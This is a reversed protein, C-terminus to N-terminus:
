RVLVMKRTATFGNAQLVCLYLGGPLAAGSHDTGDWTVSHTGARTHAAVLTRVHRGLMDYVRVEVQSEEPLSFTIRTSPNFPNPWNQELSYALQMSSMSLEAPGHMTRRGRCDVDALWYYYRRGAQVQVDDFSYTRRENSTGAGPILETTLKVRAAAGEEARYVEFGLNETESHTEWHLRAHAGIQEVRFGVLQVPVLDDNHLTGAGFVNDKGPEGFDHSVSEELRAFVEVPSWEPYRSLLLAASAAVHPAAASTGSFVGGGTFVSVSTPGVWDPKLRGDYTPGQSSYSAQPGTHWQAVPVAGVTLARAADGPILISSASHRYQLTYYNTFLTLEHSGDANTKRVRVAVEASRDMVVLLNEVPWQSGTQRTTSSDYAVWSGGSGNYYYLFLDYDQDSQWWDNWSLFVGVSAGINAFGLSNFEYLGGEAFNHWGNADSDSFQGRYHRLAHNGAANVWTIGHAFATDVMSCIPGTGDLPGANPWCMSHNIVRVGRAICSDVAEALDLEDGIKMLYLESGPAMDHVVEAVMTGHTTGGIGTGTFDYTHLSPPREGNAIAAELNGFGADVVAIKVGAGTWGNAHYGDANTLAVGESTVLAFPRLPQRLFRVYGAEVAIRTLQDVPVAVKTYRDRSKLVEAGYARLLPAVTSAERDLEAVVVLRRERMLLDHRRAWSEGEEWSSRSLVEVADLLRGEVHALARRDLQGKLGVEAWARAAWCGLAMTVLVLQRASISM